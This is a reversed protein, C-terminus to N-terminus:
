RTVVFFKSGGTNNKDISFMPLRGNHQSLLSADDKKGFFKLTSSYERNNQDCYFLKFM